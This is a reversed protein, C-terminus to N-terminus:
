TRILESFCYVSSQPITIGFFISQSLVLLTVGILLAKM